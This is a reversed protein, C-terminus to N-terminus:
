KSGVLKLNKSSDKGTFVWIGRQTKGDVKKIDEAFGRNRLRKLLEVKSLQFKVGNQELWAKYESYLVENTIFAGASRPCSSYNKDQLFYFLDDHSILNEQESRIQSLIESTLYGEEKNEDVGKILKLYDIGNIAKWDMKTLCDIQYFRRMGTPDFIMESIPRNTAGIFTCNQKAHFNSNTSLKRPSLSEASIINKLSDIDTRGAHSMEDAFVFYHDSLVRHYREDAFQSVSSYLVLGLKQFMQLLARVAHSKGSGQEGYLIIMLHNVVPWSNLKRKAQWITHALAAIVSSDKKGTWSLALNQIPTLDEGQDCRFNILINGRKFREIKKLLVYYADVLDENRNRELVKSIDKKDAIAKQKLEKYREKLTLKLVRICLDNEEAAVFDESDYNFQRQIKPMEDLVVTELDIDYTDPHNRVKGTVMPAHPYPDCDGSTVDKRYREYDYFDKFQIM